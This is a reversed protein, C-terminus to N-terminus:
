FIRKFQRTALQCFKFLICVGFHHFGAGSLTRPLNAFNYILNAWTTFDKMMESKLALQGSM